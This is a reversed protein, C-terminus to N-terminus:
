CFTSLLAQSLLWVFKCLDCNTACLVALVCAGVRWGCMHKNVGVGICVLVCALIHGSGFRCLWRWRWRWRCRCSTFPAFVLHM